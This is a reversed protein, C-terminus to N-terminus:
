ASQKKAIESIAVALSRMPNTLMGLLQGVLVPKAPIKALANIEAVDAQKGEIIGGKIAIKNNTKAITESVIKAPAVADEYGFAVATPGELVKEFGDFGCGNFARLVLRNKLVKDAARGFGTEESAMRALKEAHREGAEAIASVIGDIQQQDLRNLVQQAENAKAILQRAEQLSQLDKDILTQM